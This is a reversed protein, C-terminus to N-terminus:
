KTEERFGRRRLAEPSAVSYGFFGLADSVFAALDRLAM